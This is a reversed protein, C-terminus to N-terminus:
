TGAVSLDGGPHCADRRSRHDTSRPNRSRTTCRDMARRLVLPQARCATRLRLRTGFEAWRVAFGEAPLPIANDPTVRLGLRPDASVALWHRVTHNLIRCRPLRVHGIGTSGTVVFSLQIVPPESAAGALDFELRRIGREASPALSLPQDSIAVDLQLREDVELVLSSDLLRSVDPIMQVEYRVEDRELRLWSLQDIAPTATAPTATPWQIQLRDSPGVDARLQGTAERRQIAGHASPVRIPQLDQPSSLLLTAVPTQPIPLEVSARGADTTTLTQFSLQLHHQGTQQIPLALTSRTADWQLQIRRGDLFAERELAAVAEAALPFQIAGGLNTVHLEFDATITNLQLQSADAQPELVGTYTAEALVWGPSQGWTVGSNRVLQQRLERPVFLHEGQANGKADSPM